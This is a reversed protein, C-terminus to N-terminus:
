LFPKSQKTNTLQASDLGRAFVSPKTVSSYLSKTFSSYLQPVAIAAIVFTSMVELHALHTTLPHGLGLAHATPRRVYPRSLFIGVTYVVLNAREWEGIFGEATPIYSNKAEAFCPDLKIPRTRYMM